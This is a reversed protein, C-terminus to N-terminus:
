RSSRGKRRPSVGQGRARRDAGGLMRLFSELRPGIRRLESRHAGAVRGLTQRGVPTLRVLVRRRDEASPDRRVLGLSALRDVLGVASHHRVQLREALDGVSVLGAGGFGRIALLAQHQQPELGAARAAEESFRLFQRLAYRFGALAEYESQSIRPGKTMGDTSTEATM